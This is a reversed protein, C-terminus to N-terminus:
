GFRWQTGTSDPVLRTEWTASPIGPLEAVVTGQPDVLAYPELEDTIELTVLAGEQGLLTASTVVFTLEDPRVDQRAYAAELELDRVLGASAPDYVECLLDTQGTVLAASRSAYLEDIVDVWDEPVEPSQEPAPGPPGCLEVGATSTAEPPPTAATSETEGAIAGASPSAGTGPQASVDDGGSRLAAGVVLAVVAFGAVALLWPRERLWGTASEFWTPTATERRAAVPEEAPLRTDGDAPREPEPELEPEAPPEPEPEPEAPREPEPEAPREPEPEPEPAGALGRLAAGVGAAGAGAGAVAAALASGDSGGRSAEASVLARLADLDAGATPEPVERPAFAHLAALVGAGLLLPQGDPGVAVQDAELRGHALGADHLAALAEAVGAGVLAVEEASGASELQSALTPHEAGPLVLVDAAEALRVPAALHPDTVAAYRDLVEAIRDREGEYLPPMLQLAVRRRSGEEIAAFRDPDTGLPDPGLVVFGPVVPLDSAPVPTM